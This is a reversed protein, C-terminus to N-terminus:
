PKLDGKLEKIEKNLNLVKEQENVSLSIATLIDSDQEAIGYMMQEYTKYQKESAKKKRAVRTILNVKTKKRDFVVPVKLNFKAEFEAITALASELVLKLDKSTKVKLSRSKFANKLNEEYTKLIMQKEEITTHDLIEERFFDLWCNLSDVDFPEVPSSLYEELTEYGAEAVKFKVYQNM